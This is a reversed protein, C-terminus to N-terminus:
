YLQLFQGAANSFTVSRCPHEERKKFQVFQLLNSLADCIFM